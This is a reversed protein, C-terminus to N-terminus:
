LEVLVRELFFVHHLRLGRECYLWYITKDYLISPKHNHLNYDMTRKHTQRHLIQWVNYWPLALHLVELGQLIALVGRSQLVSAAREASVCFCVSLICVIAVMASRRVVSNGCIWGAIRRTWSSKLERPPVSSSMYILERSIVKQQTPM